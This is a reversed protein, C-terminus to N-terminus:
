FSLGLSVSSSNTERVSICMNINKIKYEPQKILTHEPLHKYHRVSFILIMKIKVARPINRGIQVGKIKVTFRLHRHSTEPKLTQTSAM